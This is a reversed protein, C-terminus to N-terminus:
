ARPMFVGRFPGPMWGGLIAAPDAVDMRQVLLEALVQRYDTTVALDQGDSLDLPGLGPWDTIVQGGLVGGGAALMVGGHGHDTGLSANERVRRGFETMVLVTTSGWAAGIDDRFAALGDGLDTLLPGIQDTQTDHHDWGGGNIAAVQLGVEARILRAADALAAGLQGQPYGEGPPLAAAPILADAAAFVSNATPALLPDAAYAALLASRSLPDLGVQFSDIRGVALADFPGALALPVAEDLALAALAGTPALETLLRGIWGDGPKLEGADIGQEMTAQAEFHSREATQLGAAHIVALDGSDYLSKLGAAAPHLGFFGDLPLAESEMVALTPRLDFYASEALPPCITLGDAGGRLFIAILRDCSATSSGASWAWRPAMAVGGTLAATQLFQRRKMSIERSNLAV